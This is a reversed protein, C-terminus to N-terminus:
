IHPKLTSLLSFHQVPLCFTYRQDQGKYMDARYGQTFRKSKHAQSGQVYFSPNTLTIKITKYGNGAKLNQVEAYANM